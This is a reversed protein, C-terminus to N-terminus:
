RIQWVAVIISPCAPMAPSVNPVAAQAPTALIECGTEEGALWFEFYDSLSAVEFTFTAAILTPEDKSVAIITSSDDVLANNKKIFVNLWKASSSGSHHGIASFTFAYFGTDTFGIKTGDTVTLGNVDIQTNYSIALANAANTISQTQTSAFTGRSLDSLTNSFTKIQNASIKVSNGSQVGYLVESGTLASALTLATLQEDAM